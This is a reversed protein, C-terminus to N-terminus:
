FIGQALLKQRFGKSDINAVEIIHSNGILDLQIKQNGPCAAKVYTFKTLDETNINKLIQVKNIPITPITPEEKIKETLPLEKLSGWSNDSISAEVDLTIPWKKYSFRMVNILEKITDDSVSKHIYFNLEDHVSIIMHILKCLGKERLWRDIKIIVIKMIDACTGQIPMNAALRRVHTDLKKNKLMEKINRRRGFYSAVYGKSKATCIQNEAWAFYTSYIKKYLEHTKIAEEESMGLKYMLVYHGGLYLLSGFNMIKAKAKYANFEPHDKEIDWVDKVTQAHGKKVLEFLNPDQSLIAAVRLEQGAYDVSLWRYDDPTSFITRVPAVGTWVDTIPFVPFDLKEESYYIYDGNYKGINNANLIWPYKPHTDVSVQKAQAFHSDVVYCSINEVKKMSPISQINVGFSEPLGPSSLRGSRAILASHDVFGWGKQDQLDFANCQLKKVYYAEKKLKKYLIIYEIVPHSGKIAELADQDTSNKHIKNTKKVSDLKLINFLFYSVQQTSLINFAAESYQFILTELRNLRNEIETELNKANNRDIYIKQRSMRILAPIVTIELKYIFPQEKIAQQLNNVYFLKFTNLADASAYPDAIIPYLIDFREGKKYNILEGLRQPCVGFYKETLDKLNNSEESDFLYAAVQADDYQIKEIDLGDNELIMLDFKANFFICKRKYLFNIFIPIAEPINTGLKHRVPVYYGIQGTSFSFGVMQSISLLGTTETDIAVYVNEPIQDLIEQLRPLSDILM